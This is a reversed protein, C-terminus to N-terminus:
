AATQGESQPSSIASQAAPAALALREADHRKLAAEIEDHYSIAAAAGDELYRPAIFELSILTKKRGFLEVLQPFMKRKVDWKLQARDPLYDIVVGEVLKHQRAAEILSFPKFPQREAGPSAGGEPFIILREGAAMTASVKERASHRSDASQREVFLHGMKELAPGFYFVKRMEAKILFLAPFVSLLVPVDLFGMHNAIVLDGMPGEHPPAIVKIGMIRCLAKGWRGILDTGKKKDWGGYGLFARIRIRYYYFLTAFLAIPARYSVRVLDGIKM